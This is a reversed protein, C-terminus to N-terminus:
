VGFSFIPVTHTYATQFIQLHFNFKLVEIELAEMPFPFFIIRFLILFLFLPQTKPIIYIVGASVKITLFCRSHLGWTNLPSQPCLPTTEDRLHMVGSCTQLSLALLERIRLNESLLFCYKSDKFFFLLLMPLTQLISVSSELLSWQTSLNGDYGWKFLFIFSKKGTSFKLLFMKIFLLLVNISGWWRSM